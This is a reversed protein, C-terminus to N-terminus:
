PKPESPAACGKALRQALHSNPFAQQFRDNERRAEQEHGSQCLAAIFAARAEPELAGGGFLAENARYLSIVSSGRNDALDLRMRRLLELQRPLSEARSTTSPPAGGAATPGSSSPAGNDANPEPSSTTERRVMAPREAAERAIPGLASSQSIVKAAEPVTSSEAIAPARTEPPRARSTTPPAGESM